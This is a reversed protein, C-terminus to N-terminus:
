IKQEALALPRSTLAEYSAPERPAGSRGTQRSARTRNGSRGYSRGSRSPRQILGRVTFYTGYGVITTLRFRAYKPLFIQGRSRVLLATFRASYTKRAYGAPM